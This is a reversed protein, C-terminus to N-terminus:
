SELAEIGPLVNGELLELSAGGGTSVHTVKHSLGFQAIAAASDGGGVVTIGPCEAVAKAVGATGSEFPKKEFVGMPGNWFVTKARLLKDRFLKVSRPGIDFAAKDQPFSAADFVFGNPSDISDAGVLDEPLIIEINKLQAQQLLTRIYPLRDTEVRSNGMNYGKAALFTNAMAGGIFLADVRTMLNEIVAVKDSVKAGGLIAYYPKQVDGLLKSLFKIEKEMLYGAARETLRAPVGTISAHARHAAGFADNVYIQAHSALKQAFGEEGEEEEKHFRLNELLCIQGDRLNHIVAKAGDGICDDTLVVDQNLLEALKAGAPELSQKPDRKGKPRGLHAALILKAGKQILAQITPLTERIRTDDTVVMQGNKEALPVNFDVRLFVRKGTVELQDITKIM